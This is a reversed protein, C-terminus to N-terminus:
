KEKLLCVSYAAIARKSFLLAGETTTSKIAVLEKGIKLIHGINKKMEDIYPSIKPEDCIIVCDLNVIMFGSDNMIKSVKNLLKLSCVGRLYKSTNPFFHGIDKKGLAGLISDCVAHLVVDGDSHAALGFPFDIKVGGLFLEKNRELRHIDFGLGVRIAKM